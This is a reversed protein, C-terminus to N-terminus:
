HHRALDVARPNIAAFHLLSSLLMCVSCDSCEDHMGSSMGPLAIGAAPLLLPVLLAM